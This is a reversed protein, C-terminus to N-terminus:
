GQTLDVATRGQEVAHESTSGDPWRIELRVPADPPAADNGHLPAFWLV